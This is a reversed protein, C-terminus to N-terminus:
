WSYTMGAQITQASFDQLGPSGGGFARWAPRQRYREFKLDLTTDTGVQRELKIGLTLAGFASLRQDASMFRPAGYVFGPPFPPGFRQDYVPDFYFRAASQTYARASPTVTWRNELPRVYEAQLMQSHVGDSSSACRAALRASAGSGALHHNWRLVVAYQDREHPRQDVYKYPNSFYGRGRVSTLVAQVIDNPTLVQTVGLMLELTHKSADTVAKNVPNIRDRALGIGAAWTTNNDASAMSAQLSAHRSRYDHERSQGAALSVTARPLYRTVEADASTRRESFRSAGSIATHYRPSAGSVLDAAAGARVSWEGAVPVLLELAPAAVRIRDLNPQSDRYDLHKISLSANEPPEAGPALGPLALAALM